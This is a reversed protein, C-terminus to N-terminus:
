NTLRVRTDTRNVVLRSMLAGYPANREEKGAHHCFINILILKLFDFHDRKNNILSIVTAINVLKNPIPHPRRATAIISERGDMLIFKVAHSGDGDHRM